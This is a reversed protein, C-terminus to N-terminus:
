EVTVTVNGPTAISPVPAAVSFDAVAPSGIPVPTEDNSMLQVTATYVLGVAEPPIGEFVAPSSGITQVVPTFSSDGGSITVQTNGPSLSSNVSGSMDWAVTVKAM